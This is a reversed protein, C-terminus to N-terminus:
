DERVAASCFGGDDQPGSYIPCIKKNGCNRCRILETTAEFPNPIFEMEDEDYICIYEIM